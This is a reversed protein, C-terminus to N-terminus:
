RTEWLIYIFSVQIWSQPPVPVGVPFSHTVELAKGPPIIALPAGGRRLWTKGDAAFTFLAQATQLRADAATGIAGSLTPMGPNIPLSKVPNVLAVSPLLVASALHPAASVWALLDIVAYYAGSPDNNNLAVCNYFGAQFNIGQTGIMSYDAAVDARSRTFTGLWRPITNM